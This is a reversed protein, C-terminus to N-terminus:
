QGEVLTKQETNAEHTLVFCVWFQKQSVVRCLQSILPQQGWLPMKELGKLKLEEEESRMGLGRGMKDEESLDLQDIERKLYPKRSGKRGLQTHPSSLLLESNFVCKLLSKNHGLQTRSAGRCGTPGKHLLTGSTM